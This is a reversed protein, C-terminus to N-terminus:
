NISPILSLAGDSVWWGAFSGRKERPSGSYGPICTAPANEIRRAAPVDFEGTRRYARGYVATEGPELGMVHMTHEWGYRFHFLRGQRVRVDMSSTWFSTGALRELHVALLM